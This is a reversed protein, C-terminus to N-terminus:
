AMPNYVRLERLEQLCTAQQVFGSRCQAGLQLFTLKQLHQLVSSHTSLPSAEGTQAAVSHGNSPALM